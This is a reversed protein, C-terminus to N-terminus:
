EGKASDANTMGQGGDSTPPGGSNAKLAQKNLYRERERDREIERYSFRWSRMCGKCWNQRVGNKRYKFWFDTIPLYTACGSCRQWEM